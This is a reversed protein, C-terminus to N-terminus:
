LDLILFTLPYKNLPLFTRWCNIWNPFGAFLESVSSYYFMKLLLNGSVGRECKKNRCKRSEYENIM